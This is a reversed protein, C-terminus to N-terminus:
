LLSEVLVFLLALFSGLSAHGVREPHVVDDAVLPGAEVAVVVVARLVPVLHLRSFGPRSVRVLQNIILDVPYDFLSRFRTMALSKKTGLSRENLSTM